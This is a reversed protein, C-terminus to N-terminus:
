TIKWRCCELNPEWRCNDFFIAYVLCTNMNNVISYTGCPQVFLRQVSSLITCTRCTNRIVSLGRSTNTKKRKLLVRTTDEENHIDANRCCLMNFLRWKKRIKIGANGLVLGLEVVCVLACIMGSFEECWRGCFVFRGAWLFRIAPIVIACTLTSRVRRQIYHLENANANAKISQRSAKHRIASVHGIRRDFSISKAYLVPDARQSRQDEKTRWEFSHIMMARWSHMCIRVHLANTDIRNSVTTTIIARKQACLRLHSVVSILEPVSRYSCHMSQKRAATRIDIRVGLVDVVVIMGGINISQRQASNWNCGLRTIPRLYPLVAIIEDICFIDANHNRM